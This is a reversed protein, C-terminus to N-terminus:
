KRGTKRAGPIYIGDSASKQCIHSLAVNVSRAAEAFFFRQQLASDPLFLFM